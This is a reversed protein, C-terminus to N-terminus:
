DRIYQKVSAAKVADRTHLLETIESLDRRDEWTGVKVYRLGRPSGWLDVPSGIYRVRRDHRSIGQRACWDAFQHYNGALVYLRENM